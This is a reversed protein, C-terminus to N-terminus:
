ITKNKEKIKKMIFGIKAKHHTATLKSTWVSFLRLWTILLSEQELTEPEFLPVIRESWPPDTNVCEQRLGRM